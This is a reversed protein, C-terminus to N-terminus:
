PAASRSSLKARQGGRYCGHLLQSAQKMATLEAHWDGALAIQDDVSMERDLREACRSHAWRRPHLRRAYENQVLWAGRESYSCHAPNPHTPIVLPKIHSLGTAIFDCCIPCLGAHGAIIEFM